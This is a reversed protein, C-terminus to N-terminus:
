AGALIAKMTNGAQYPVITELSQGIQKQAVDLEYAKQLNLWFDADTGFFKGLRLATDATIIRQKKLIQYIRNDPVGIRIALATASIGTEALKDALVEGPHIPDKWDSMLKGREHDLWSKLSLSCQKM